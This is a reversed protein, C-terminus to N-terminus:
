VMAELWQGSRDEWSFNGEAYDACCMSMETIKNRDSDLGRIVSSLYSVATTASGSDFYEPCVVGVNSSPICEAIAGSITAIVPVGCAMAEIVPMQFGESCSTSLYLDLGRYWEAMEAQSLCDGASSTNCDFVVTGELLERLPVVIEEYGKTKGKSQGCWGVRLTGRIGGRAQNANFVETDVGPTVRVSPLISKAANLIRDSVCLASDASRLMKHANRTNRNRTAIRSPFYERLPPFKYMLGESAIWVTKKGAFPIRTSAESWSCQSVGDYSRLIPESSSVERFDTQNVIDVSWENKDAYKQIGLAMYHWSWWDRDYVILVRKM